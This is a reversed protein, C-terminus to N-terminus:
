AMLFIWGYQDRNTRGSKVSASYDTPEAPAHETLRRSNRAEDEGTAAACDRGTVCGGGGGARRPGPLRGLWLRSSSSGAKTAARLWSHALPGQLLCFPPRPGLLMSATKRLEGAKWASAKKGRSSSQM